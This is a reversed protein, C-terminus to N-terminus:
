QRDDHMKLIPGLHLLDKKRERHKVLKIEVMAIDQGGSCARGIEGYAVFCLRLTISIRLGV